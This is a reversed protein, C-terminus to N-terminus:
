NTQKIFKNFKKELSKSNCSNEYCDVAEQISMFCHDFSIKKIVGGEVFAPSIYAIEGPVEAAIKVLKGPKVTGYADVNMARSVPQVTIM